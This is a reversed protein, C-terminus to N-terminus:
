ENEVNTKVKKPNVQILIGTEPNLTVMCNEGTFKVSTKGNNRLTVNVVSSKSFLADKIDTIEVGSRRVIQLNNKFKQPDIMTGVVRQIFHRSQGSILIGNTARKGVIESQIQNHLAEYGDFGALPSIWGSKVDAAYNQLLEYRPIDNYKVEYYEALNKISSDVGISKSWTKYHGRAAKDAANAQKHGFGAVEARETQTRLKAAKSFGNYEQRLTQLKIQDTKLKEADGTAEDILIRRKQKRIARELARQHQTAEYGTYHRGNYTIGEANATRMAELQEASYQPSSIGMIIPYASHGCNLTGIRRVLSNNLAEYEADPYQKGQIPEHDPASNSHADIEWGDAGMDDHNRKSIEEQMLGLGGMINRRVAAELTTHVGSEYDIVYVGKDALNKTAARIATNYDAAGTSVQMFAYDMCQRYATQLPQANGYPDIMGLTQTINTLDDQALAVAAAVIQQVAANDAFSIAEATPLMKLDFSYGAQASQTMLREIDANTSKLLKQLEKKIEKQSVGLQQLKWTEYQATATFEGAAAIREALDRLLYAIIPATLEESADRLSAIEGATLM